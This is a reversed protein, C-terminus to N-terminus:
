GAISAIEVPRPTPTVRTWQRYGAIQKLTATDDATGALILGAAATTTALILLKFSIKKM